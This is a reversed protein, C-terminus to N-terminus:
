KATIGARTTVANWVSTGKTVAADGISTVREVTASVVGSACQGSKALAGVAASWAGQVVLEGFLGAAQVSATQWLLRRQPRVLSGCYHRAIVGVRLTFYANGAGSAISNALAGAVAGLGPIAMLPAGVVSPVTRGIHESVDVDDLERAAFATAAVNSYLYILDRLTPRQYYIRAIEFVLKSLVILVLLSDFSGNQSVATSVFVQSAAAKTRADALKDLRRLCEDLDLEEAPGACLHPNRALRKRLRWLHKEQSQSDGAIPPVLPPPLTFFVFSPVLVCTAFVGVLTWSAVKGILPHFRNAVEVLQFSQNIVVVASSVLVLLACPIVIYALTKRMPTFLPPRM